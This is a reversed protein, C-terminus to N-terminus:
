GSAPRRRLAQRITDDLPNVAKSASHAHTRAQQSAALRSRAELLQSVTLATITKYYGDAMRSVHLNARKGLSSEAESLALYRLGQQLNDVNLQRAALSATDLYIAAHSQQDLSLHRSAIGSAAVVQQVPNDIKQYLEDATDIAYRASSQQGIRFLTLARDAMAIPAWASDSIRVARATALQMARNGRTPKHLQHWAIALRHQSLVYLYDSETTEIVREAFNPGSTFIVNGLEYLFKQTSVKSQEYFHFRSDQMSPDIRYLAITDLPARQDPTVLAKGASSTSPAIAASNDSRHTPEPLLQADKLPEIRVLEANGNAPTSSLLENTNVASAIPEIKVLESNANHHPIAVATGATEESVYVPFAQSTDVVVSTEVERRSDHANETNRVLERALLDLLDVSEGGNGPFTAAVSTPLPASEPLEASMSSGAVPRTEAIERRAIPTYLHGPWAKFQATPSPAVPRPKDTAYSALQISITGSTSAPAIPITQLTPPERQIAFTFALGVLAACCLFVPELPLKALLKSGTVAIAKDFKCRLTRRAARLRYPMKALGTDLKLTVQRWARQFRYM